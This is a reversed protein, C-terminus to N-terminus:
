KNESLMRYGLMGALTAVQVVALCWAGGWAGYLTILPLAFLLAIAGTTLGVFEFLANKRMRYHLGITRGAFYIGNGAWIIYLIPTYHRYDEGIMYAVVAEGFLFIAAAGAIWVASGIHFLMMSGHRLSQEGSQLKSSLWAPVFTELMELLVNVFTTIARVTGLIAAAEVSYLAGTLLIPLHLGTWRVPANYINWKSLSLHRRVLDANAKSDGFLSRERFLNALGILALPVAPLLMALLFGTVAEPRAYLIIGIRAGYLWLSQLTANAINGFVYEKRRLFDALQQIALFALLLTAESATIRWGLPERFVLLGALVVLSALVATFAQNKLLVYEYRRSETEKCLINAVAFFTSVNFLVLAIYATYLYVLKGQEILPLFAAGLAITLFNAGSVASQDVLSLFFHKKAKRM